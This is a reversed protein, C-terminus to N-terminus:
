KKKGPFEKMAKKFIDFHKGLFKHVLDGIAKVSSAASNATAGWNRAIESIAKANSKAEAGYRGALADRIANPNQKILNQYGVAEFAKVINSYDYNLSEKYTRDTLSRYYDSQSTTLEMLSEKHQNELEQGKTQQEILKTEANKKNKESLINAIGAAASAGELAASGVKMDGVSPTTVNLGGAHGSGAGGAALMPNLGAKELGSVNWSPQNKALKEQYKYQLKAAKKAYYWSLASSGITNLISGAGAAGAGAAIAGATLSM